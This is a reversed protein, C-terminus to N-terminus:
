VYKTKTNEYIGNGLQGQGDYGVTYVNGEGDVILATSYQTPAIELIDLNKKSRKAYPQTTTNQTFLQGYNNYGIVYMGQSKGETDKKRSIYTSDGGAKVHKADSVLNGSTNRVYTPTSINTSNGNGLQSNSDNGVSYVYGNEALMISHNTGAAIEKVGSVSTMQKPQVQIDTNGIGLQGSSNYGTSWVNGDADLMIAHNAGAAIQIIKSVKKM